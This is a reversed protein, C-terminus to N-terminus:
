GDDEIIREWVSKREPEGSPPPPDVKAAFQFDGNKLPRAVPVVRKGELNADLCMQTLELRTKGMGVLAMTLISVQEKLQDIQAQLEPISALAEGLASDWGSPPREAEEANAILTLCAPCDVLPFRDDEDPDVVTDGDPFDEGYFLDCATARTTPAAGYAASIHCAMM